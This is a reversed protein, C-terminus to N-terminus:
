EASKKQNRIEPRPSNNKRNRIYDAVKQPVLEDISEANLLKKRIETASIDWLPADIIQVNPKNKFEEISYGPRPYVIIGFKEVIEDFHYWRNTIALNDGGLLLSFNHQPFDSKLSKLTNITYHPQPLHFEYDSAKMRPQNEIALKLMHLRENEPWLDTTKKLPNQPSVLFWLEDVGTKDMVSRAISLHGNHIPNFSGSYIAIKM